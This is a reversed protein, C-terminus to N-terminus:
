RPRRQLPPHRRPTGMVERTTIPKQKDPFAPCYKQVPAELDIKNREWLQLAGVATLPKSISGLRYLTHESAPVNNEVDALGFGNAWELEGNEVVAVSVGPAHTTTMFKAVAAEIQSKKAPSLKEQQATSITCLFLVVASILFTRRNLLTM